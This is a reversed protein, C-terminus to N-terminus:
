VRFGVDELVGRAKGFELAVRAPGVNTPNRQLYSGSTGCVCERFTIQM